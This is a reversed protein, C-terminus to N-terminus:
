RHLIRTQDVVCVVLFLHEAIGEGEVPPDQFVRLLQLSDHQDFSRTVRGDSPTGLRQGFGAFGERHQVVVAELLDGGDVGIEGIAMREIFCSGILGFHM